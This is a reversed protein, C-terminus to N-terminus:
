REFKAQGCDWLKYMGYQYGTNGRYRLRHYTKNNKVWVFSLRDTVLEFGMKYLYEGTGYRKDVFTQIKNVENNKIIHQILRSYGGIVTTNLINCFRSIDVMGNRNTFQLACVTTDENTLAYCNGRGKGMLHNTNFFKVRDDNNLEIIKCKRAFIKSSQKVSNKIISSVIDFKDEIENERFFLARYGLANYKDLKERHYKYNQNIADCHWYLGDAEIILNHEPLIFDPYYGGILKHKKYKLNLDKLINEIVTEIATQYKGMNITKDLGYKRVRNLFGSRSVGTRRSLEETDFGVKEVAHNKAKIRNEPLQQPFDVGYRKRNNAIANAKVIDSQAPNKVGYKELNTKIIKDKIIPSSLTSKYGFKKMCTKERNKNKAEISPLFISQEDFIGTETYLTLGKKWKDKSWNYFEEFNNWVCNKKIKGVWLTYLFTGTQGHTKARKGCLRMMNKKHCGCSKTNGSNVANIRIIKRTGCVCEYLAYPKGNRNEVKEIM